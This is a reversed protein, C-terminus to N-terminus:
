EGNLYNLALQICHLQNATLSTCVKHDPYFIFSGDAGVSAEGIFIGNYRLNYSNCSGFRAQEGSVNGVQFDKPMKNRTSFM